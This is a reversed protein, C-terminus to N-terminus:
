KDAFINAARGRKLANKAANEKEFLQLGCEPCTFVSNKKIGMSGCRSCENSIDKGMVDILEVSRERCKQALRKKIYGRQWMGVSYNITRSVGARSAQPLKPIYIVKPKEGTLMHNIETNIYTHLAAELRKKGAYYKKRGPNNRKNRNYRSIGERVYDTLEMQFKGYEKGYVTGDDTVFMNQIGLALGIERTYDEIEVSRIEIPIQIDVKGEEPFLRIYLRKKYQNGDTLPIFLRKRKEKISFYIGHDGYRYARESIYFGEYKDTHLKKLHKRVQRCLYLNLRREDVLSRLEDYRENWPKTLVIEKETLIAEFCGSVKMVFRLYRRETATLNPNERVAKSVRNKTHSWNAKIDGLADFVALYFYVSPLGLCARFGSETMENQVTYGPYIKSLSKIGGYRQYVYNKVKGYDGALETLKEMDKAPLPTKNYQHVTKYIVNSQAM